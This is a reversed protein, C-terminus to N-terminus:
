QDQQSGTEPQSNRLGAISISKEWNQQERLVARQVSSPAHEAFYVLAKEQPSLPTPTPFVDLKPLTRSKAALVRHPRKAASLPAHRTLPAPTKTQAVIRPPAPTRAVDPIRPTRFLWVAAIAMAILCVAAPIAWRWLPWQARPGVEGAQELLKLAVIRAEPVKGPEAYTRIADEIRTDLSNDPDNVRM